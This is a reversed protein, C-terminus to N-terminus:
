RNEINGVQYICGEREKLRGRERGRKAFSLEWTPYFRSPACKAKEQQVLRFKMEMGGGRM